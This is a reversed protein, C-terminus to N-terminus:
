YSSQSGYRAILIADARGSDKKRRVDAEPYLEVVRGRSADKEAGILGFAKKWAQPTVYTVPLGMGAVVGEVVGFSRGFNFMSTVGQGPMAGVRELYVHVQRSEATLEAIFRRLQAGDVKDKKGKGDPIVPMDLVRKLVEGELFAIAGTKGPDIGINIKM